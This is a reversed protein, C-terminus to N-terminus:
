RVRMYARELKRSRSFAHQTTGNGRGHGWIVSSLAGAAMGTVLSIDSVHAYYPETKKTSGDTHHSSKLAAHRRAPLLLADITPEQGPVAQLTGAPIHETGGRMLINTRFSDGDEHDFLGRKFMSFADYRREQGM